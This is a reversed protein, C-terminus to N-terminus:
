SVPNLWRIHQANFVLTHPADQGRAFKSSKSADVRCDWWQVEVTNGNGLTGRAWFHVPNETDIDAPTWDAVQPDATTGAGHLNSDAIGVVALRNQDSLNELAVTVQYDTHATDYDYTHRRTAVNIATRDHTVTEDVGDDSLDGLDVRTLEKVTAGSAHSYALQSKLTIAVTTNTEIQAVDMSGSAGVRIYDNSSANTTSVVSITTQGEAESSSLTTSLVSGTSDVMKGFQSLAKWLEANTNTRAM